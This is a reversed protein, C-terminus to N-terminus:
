IGEKWVVCFFLVFPFRGVFGFHAFIQVLSLIDNVRKENENKFIVM